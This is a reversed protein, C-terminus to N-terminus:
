FEWDEEVSKIAWEFKAELTKSFVKNIPVDFKKCFVVSLRPDIYNIKSTGLAVEKNDEQTEMKREAQNLSTELKEIKQDIKEVTPGKGEAEVKKSKWEKKREKGLADAVKLREKLEKEPFPKEGNDARKKNDTEFKKTIKTREQEVLFEIHQQVWEDNNMDEELKFYDAGRKKKLKADLDVLMLKHRWIQFKIAKIRDQMKEMSAAHGAGVTRKHNCLIAVERNAKNYELMKDAITAGPPFKLEKLLRSMTWSANYTRFVKATLGPMYSNLHKNLSSTTLRDFIDDGEGKPHKKFLKLNKFVQKEVRIEDYYRISDKGLFDFIVTEPDRLTIHQYKLSCCGVTEAENETDKENGARLALKDILYIATARQRDSMIESKLDKNYDKRIREIYKKLSRAKEFKKFDSQGKTSSDAGTMVYKYNGNINEQWMALWSASQDHKVAKWKHGAPPEPVKAGKGINITVQEPKVRLKLRGTKPHEGRGRFLSPPEIRFNGVKEKRGNWVCFKFPEEEKDKKEKEAKKEEKSRTKKAESKAKYHDFIPKFDCKSFDKINVKNGQKDKAGGHEALVERFDEFFNKQFVPNAAHASDIMSGFFVAVEEAEPQMVVPTGDYILKVSKPLPEYAPPFIVGNHELTEWKTGSDEQMPKDWWRDGEEEEEAEESEAKKVDKKAAAKKAPVPAAKAKGKIAPSPKVAPKAKAKTPKKLPADSDSDAEKKVGNAKKAVGNSQRRKPAALPADSDSEDKISKRKAKGEKAAADEIEKKKQALKVTLPKDDDSDSDIMDARTAKPPLRGKRANLPADDDSDSDAQVKRQRKAIPADDSDSEDKYSTIASIRSKRKANGNAHPSDLDMADGNPVPGHRISVPAPLGASRSVDKAQDAKSVVAASLHGNPRALPMDDDSYDSAM